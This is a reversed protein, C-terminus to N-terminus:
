APPRAARQQRHRVALGVVVGVAFFPLGWWAARLLVESFQGWSDLVVASPMPVPVGMFGSGSNGTSFVFAALLIVVPGLLLSDRLSSRAMYGTMLASVPILVMLGMYLLGPGGLLLLSIIAIPKALLGELLALALLAGSWGLLWRAPRDETPTRATAQDKM